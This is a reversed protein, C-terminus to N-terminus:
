KVDVASRLGEGILAFAVLTIMILLGPTAVVWPASRVAPLLVDQLMNGWSPMPPQVGLGLYSLGAEALINDGISFTATVIVPALANPILHRLL